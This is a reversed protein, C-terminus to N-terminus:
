WNILLYTWETLDVLICKLTLWLTRDSTYPPWYLNYANNGGGGWLNRSLILISFHFFHALYNCRFYFGIKLHSVPTPIAWDTYRRAVPQVARTLTGVTCRGCRSQPGGLRRDFSYGPSKGRRICRCSCSSSWEGGELASTLFPPAKGGSGWINM